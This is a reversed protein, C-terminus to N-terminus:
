PKRFNYLETIDTSNIPAEFVILNAINGSFFNQNSQTARQSAGINKEADISSSAIGNVTVSARGVEQGDIYFIQENPAISISVM